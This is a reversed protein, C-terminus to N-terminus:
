FPQCDAGGESKEADKRNEEHRHFFPRSGGFSPSRSDFKIEDASRGVFEPVVEILRLVLKAGHAIGSKGISPFLPFDVAGIINPM